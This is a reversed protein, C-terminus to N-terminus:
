GAIECVADQGTAIFRVANVVGMPVDSSGVTVDGLGWDLWKVSGAESRIDVLPSTSVQAKVSGGVGPFVSITMADVGTIFVDSTAGALVTVQASSRRSALDSDLVLVTM